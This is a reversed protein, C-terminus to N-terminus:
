FPKCYMMGKNFSCPIFDEFIISLTASLKLSVGFAMYFILALRVCFLLAIIVVVVVILSGCFSLFSNSSVQLSSFIPCDGAMTSAKIAQISWCLPLAVFSQIYTLLCLGQGNM